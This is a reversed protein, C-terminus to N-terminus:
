FSLHKLYTCVQNFFPYLRYIEMNYTYIYGEEKATIVGDGNPDKNPSYGWQCKMGQCLRLDSENDM